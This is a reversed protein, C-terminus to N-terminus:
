RKDGLDKIQFARCNCRKHNDKAIGRLKLSLDKNYEHFRLSHGCVCGM